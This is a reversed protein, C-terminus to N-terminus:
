PSAQLDKSSQHANCHITHLVFSGTSFIFFPQPSSLMGTSPVPGQPWHTDKLRSDAIPSYMPCGQVQWLRGKRLLFKLTRRKPLPLPENQNTESFAHSFQQPFHLPHSLHTLAVNNLTLPLEVFFNALHFHPAQKQYCNNVPHEYESVFHFEKNCELTCLCTCFSNFCPM